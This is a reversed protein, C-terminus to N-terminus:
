SSKGSGPTGVALGRLLLDLHTALYVDPDHGADCVCWAHRWVALLLVPAFIVDIAVEIDVPRFEGAAIGRQLAARLLARGRSIVAEHYYTAIEPFNRAESLMLKPIGGFRSKGVLAWWGLLLERLLAVASGEFRSLVIEGQELVPLIGERIVARFLAEKNEFYLYLTGKSVGARAAVDDLRTAAYGKETFLEVAAAILEAPREDKRRRRVPNDLLHPYTDDSM